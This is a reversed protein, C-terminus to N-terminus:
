ISRNGILQKIFDIIPSLVQLLSNLINSLLPVTIGIQQLVYVLLFIGLTISLIRGIMKFVSIALYALFIALVFMIITNLNINSFDINM